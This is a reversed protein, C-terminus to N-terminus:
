LIVNGKTKGHPARPQKGTCMACVATSIIQLNVKPSRPQMWLINANYLLMKFYFWRQGCSLQVTYCRMVTPIIQTWVGHRLTVHVNMKLVGPMNIIPM